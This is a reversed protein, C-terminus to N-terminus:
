QGAGDNGHTKDSRESIIVRSFGELRQPHFLQFTDGNQLDFSNFIEKDVLFFM